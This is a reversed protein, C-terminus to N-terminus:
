SPSGSTPYSPTSGTGVPVSPTVTVTSYSVSTTPVCTTYTFPIVTTPYSPPAEGTKTSLTPYPPLASSPTAVATSVSATPTEVSTSLGGTPYGPITSNGFTSSSVISSSSVVSTSGVPAETTTTSIVPTSVVPTSLVPYGGPGTPSEVSTSRAPCDTVTPGCSTITKYDTEYITSGAMAAGAFIVAGAFRM